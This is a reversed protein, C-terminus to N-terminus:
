FDEERPTHIDEPVSTNTLTIGSLSFDEFDSLDIESGDPLEEVEGEEERAAEVHGGKHLGKNKTWSSHSKQLHESISVSSSSSPTSARGRTRDQLWVNLNRMKEDDTESVESGQLGPPEKEPSRSKKPSQKQPSNTRRPFQSRQMPRIKKPSWNQPSKIREPSYSEQLSQSPPSQSSPSESGSSQNEYYIPVKPYLQTEQPSQNPGSTGEQSLQSLSIPTKQPLQSPSQTAHYSQSALPSQSPLSSQSNGSGQSKTTSPYAEEVQKRGEHLRGKMLGQLTHIENTKNTKFSLEKAPKNKGELEENERVPQSKKGEIGNTYDNIKGNNWEDCVEEDTNEEFEMRMAVSGAISPTILKHKMATNNAEGVGCGQTDDVQIAVSQKMKEIVASSHSSVSEERKSSMSEKKEKNKKSKTIMEEDTGKDTEGNSLDSLMREDGNEKSELQHQTSGFPSKRYQDSAMIESTIRPDDKGQMESVSSHSTHHQSGINVNRKPRLIKQNMDEDNNGVSMEPEYVTNEAPIPHSHSTSANFPITSAPLPTFTGPHIHSTGPQPSPHHSSSVTGPSPQLEERYHLNM